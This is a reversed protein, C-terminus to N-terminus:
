VPLSSFAELLVHALERVDSKSRCGSQLNWCAILHRFAKTEEYTELLITIQKPVFEVKVRGDSIECKM